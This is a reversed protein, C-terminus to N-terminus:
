KYFERPFNLRAYDGFYKIAAKDYAIAARTPCKFRGLKKHKYNVKIQAIWCKTQKCFCVGKWGSTNNQPKSGNFQNQQNTVKRLNDWSNNKRITDKHDIQKKPWRGTRYFWALVHARYRKGGIGILIYGADNESGANSGAKIQGFKQDIRWTWYGTNAVYRLISKLYELTVRGDADFKIIEKKKVRRVDPKGVERVPFLSKLKIM